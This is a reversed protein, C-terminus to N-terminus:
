RVALRAPSASWGEWFGNCEKWRRAVALVFMCWWKIAWQPLNIFKRGLQSVNMVELELQSAEWFIAWFPVWCLKICSVCFIRLDRLKHLKNGWHIERVSRLYLKPQRMDESEQNLGNASNSFKSNLALALDGFSIMKQLPERQCTWCVWKNKALEQGWTGGARDRLSPYPLSYM